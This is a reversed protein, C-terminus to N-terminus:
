QLLHQRFAFSARRLALSRLASAFRSYIFSIADVIRLPPLSANLGIDFSKESSRAVKGDLGIGSPTLPPCALGNMSFCRSGREKMDFACCRMVM